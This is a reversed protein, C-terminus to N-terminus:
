RYASKPADYMCSDQLNKIVRNLQMLNGGRDAVQKVSFLIWGSAKEIEEPTPRAEDLNELTISEGADKVAVWQAMRKIFAENALVSATRAAIAEKMRESASGGLVNAIARANGGGGAAKSGAIGPQNALDNITRADKVSAGCAQLGSFLTGALAIKLGIRQLSDSMGEGLLDGELLIDDFSLSENIIEQRIIRRLESETIIM